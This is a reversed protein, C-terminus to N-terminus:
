SSKKKSHNEKQDENNDNTPEDITFEDDFLKQEKVNLKKAFLLHSIEDKSLLGNLMKRELNRVRRYQREFCVMVVGISAALAALISFSLKGSTVASAIISSGLVLIIFSVSILRRASNSSQFTEVMTEIIGKPSLAGARKLIDSLDDHGESEAISLPTLFHSNTQSLKAGKKILKKSLEVNCNSAFFHLPTEGYRDKSDILSHHKILVLAVDSHNQQAALHLPLSGYKNKLNVNAGKKILLESIEAYGKIAAIHLPTNKKSDRANVDIPESLLQKVLLTNGSLITSHLALKAKSKKM